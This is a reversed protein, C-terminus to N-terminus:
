DLFLEGIRRLNGNQFFLDNVIAPDSTRLSVTKGRRGQRLLDRLRGPMQKRLLEFVVAAAGRRDLRETLAFWMADYNTRPVRIGKSQFYAQKYEKTGTIHQLLDVFSHEVSVVDKALM